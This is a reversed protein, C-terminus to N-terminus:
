WFHDNSPRCGCSKQYAIFLSKTIKPVLSFAYMLSGSSTIWTLQRIQGSFATTLWWLNWGLAHIKLALLPWLSHSSAWPYVIHDLAIRGTGSLVPQFIRPDTPIKQAYIFKRNDLINFSAFSVQYTQPKTHGESISSFMTFLIYARCIVLILLLLRYLICSLGIDDQRCLSGLDVIIYELRANFVTFCMSARIRSGLFPFNGDQM